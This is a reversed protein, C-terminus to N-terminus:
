SMGEVRLALREMRGPGPAATKVKPASVAAAPSVDVGVLAGAPTYTIVFFFAVVATNAWLLWRRARGGAIECVGGECARRDRRYAYWAWALAGLAATMLYAKYRVLFVTLLSSGLGAAILLLPVVCCSAGLIGALVGKDKRM